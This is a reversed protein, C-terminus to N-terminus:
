LFYRAPNTSMNIGYEMYLSDQFFFGKINVKLAIKKQRFKWRSMSQGGLILPFDLIYSSWTTKCFISVMFGTVEIKPIKCLTCSVILLYYFWFTHLVLVYPSGYEIIGLFHLTLFHFPGYKFIYRLKTCESAATFLLWFHFIHRFPEFNFVKTVANLILVWM